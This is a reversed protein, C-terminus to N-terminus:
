KALLRRRLEGPTAGAHAHTLQSLGAQSLGLQAAVAALKDEGRLLEEAARFRAHAQEVRFAVGAHQLQRQLSRPSLGLRKAVGPLDIAGRTEALVGRLALAIPTVGRARQVLVEVEDFLEGGGDPLVRRFAARPDSEITVPSDLALVSQIGALALGTVGPPIVAVRERVREHVLDANCRLWQLLDDLAMPDISDVGRADQVFDFRPALHQYGDFVRMLASTEARGPRGWVAFGCLTPAHCWFLASPLPLWRRVPDRFLEDHTACETM